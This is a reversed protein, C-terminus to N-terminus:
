RFWCCSSTHARRPPQVVVVTAGYSGIPEGDDPVM